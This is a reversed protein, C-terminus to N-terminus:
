PPRVIRSKQVLPLPANDFLFRDPLGLGHVFDLAFADFGHEIIKVLCRKPLRHGEQLVGRPDAGDAAPM